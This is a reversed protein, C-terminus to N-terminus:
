GSYLGAKDKPDKEFAEVKSWHLEMSAGGVNAGRLILTDGSAKALDGLYKTANQSFSNGITLVRVTMGSSKPAAPTTPEASRAPLSLLPLLVALTGALPRRKM